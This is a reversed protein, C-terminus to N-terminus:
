RLEAYLAEIRGVISAWTFDRAVRERGSAGLAAAADADSLLSAIAAGLAEPDGYDVLLGTEGEAVSRPRQRCRPPRDAPAPRHGLYRAPESRHQSLQALVIVPESADHDPQRRMEIAPWVFMRNPDPRDGLRELQPGTQRDRQLVLPQGADLRLLPQRQSLPVPALPFRPQIGGRGRDNQLVVQVRL